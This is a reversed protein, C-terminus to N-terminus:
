ILLVAMFVDLVCVGAAAVVSCGAAVGATSRLPPNMGPATAACPQQPDLPALLPQQPSAAAAVVAVAAAATWFGAIAGIARWLPQQPEGVVLQQL